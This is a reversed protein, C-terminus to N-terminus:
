QNTTGSNRIAVKPEVIGGDTVASYEAIFFRTEGECVFFILKRTTELWDVYVSGSSFNSSRNKEDHQMPQHTRNGVSITIAPSSIVGNGAALLDFQM